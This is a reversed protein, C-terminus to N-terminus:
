PHLAAHVEDFLKKLEFEYLNLKHARGIERIAVRFQRFNLTGLGKSDLLNFIDDVKRAQKRGLIGTLQTCLCIKLEPNVPKSTSWAFHVQHPTLHPLEKARGNSQQQFLGLGFAVMKLLAEALSVLFSCLFAAQDVDAKWTENKWQVDIDASGMGATYVLISCSMFIEWGPSLLTKQLGTQLRKLISQREERAYPDHEEDEDLDVGHPMGEEDDERRHGATQPKKFIRAFMSKVKQM